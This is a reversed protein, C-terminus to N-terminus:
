RTTAGPVSSRIQRVAVLAREITGRYIRATDDVGVLGEEYHGIAGRWPSLTRAATRVLPAISAARPDLLPLDVDGRVFAEVVGSGTRFRGGCTALAWCLGFEVVSLSLPAAVTFQACEAADRGASIEFRSRSGEIYVRTSMWEARGRTLTNWVAKLCVAIQETDGKFESAGSPTLSDHVPVRHAGIRRVFTLVDYTEYSSPRFLTLYSRLGDLAGFAERLNRDVAGGVEEIADIRDVQDGASDLLAASDSLVRGITHWDPTLRATPPM